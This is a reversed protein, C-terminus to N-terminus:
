VTVHHFIIPRGLLQSAVRSVQSADGTTIFSYSVSKGASLLNNKVLIRQVHRAVADSSDLITVNKGVVARIEEEIFPYHSCGLVIVDVGKQVMPGLSKKIISKVSNGHIYGNEILPALTHNGINEVLCDHAFECILRKQYASHATRYTSFIGIHKHVTLHSATKIVPVIGIIPINPFTIRYFDIGMVTATNCAVVILKSELRNLFAILKCVRERIEGKSKKSYPIFSNDGIYHTSEYPLLATLARWISLGGVGSDLIGIPRTDM